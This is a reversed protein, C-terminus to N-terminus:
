SRRVETRQNSKQLLKYNPNQETTEDNLKNRLIHIDREKLLTDLELIEAKFHGIALEKITYIM